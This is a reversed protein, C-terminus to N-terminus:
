QELVFPAIHVDDHRLREDRRILFHDLARWEDDDLTADFIVARGDGYDSLLESLKFDAFAERVGRSRESSWRDPRIMLCALPVNSTASASKGTSFTVSAAIICRREM